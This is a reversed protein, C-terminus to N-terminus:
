KVNMYDVIKSTADDGISLPIVTYSVCHESDPTAQSFELEMYDECGHPLENKSGVYFQGREPRAGGTDHSAEVTHTILLCGGSVELGFMDADFFGKGSSQFGTLNFALLNTAGEVASPIPLKKDKESGNVFRKKGCLRVYVVPAHPLQAVSWNTMREASAIHDHRKPVLKSTVRLTNGRIEVHRQVACNFNGDIDSQMTVSSLTQTMVRYPNFDFALPPPWSGGDANKWQDQPGIWTKEGGRNIWGYMPVHVIKNTWFVNEFGHAHLSMVRGGLDPRIVARIVDSELVIGLPIDTQKAYGSSLCIGIAILIPIAKGMVSWGEIAIPMWFTRSIGIFWIKKEKKM